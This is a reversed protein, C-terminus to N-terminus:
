KSRAKSIERYLDSLESRGDKQHWIKWREEGCRDSLHGVHVGHQLYSAPSMRDLDVEKRLRIHHKGLFPSCVQSCFMCVVHRIM